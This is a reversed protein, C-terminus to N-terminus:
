SVGHKHQHLADGHPVFDGAERVKIRLLSLSYKHGFLSVFGSAAPLGRDSAHTQLKAFTGDIHVASSDTFIQPAIRQLHNQHLRKLQSLSPISEIDM